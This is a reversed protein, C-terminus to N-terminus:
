HGWRQQCVVALMLAHAWCQQSVVQWYYLCSQKYAFALILAAQKSTIIQKNYYKSYINNYIIIINAQKCAFILILASADNLM